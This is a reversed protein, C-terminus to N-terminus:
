GRDVIGWNSIIGSEQMLLPARVFWLEFKRNSEYYKTLRALETACMRKRTEFKQVLRANTSLGRNVDVMSFAASPTPSRASAATVWQGYINYTVTTM